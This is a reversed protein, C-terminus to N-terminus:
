VDDNCRQGFCDVCMKVGTKVDDLERTLERENQHYFFCVTDVVKWFLLLGGDSAVVFTRKEGRKSVRRERTNWDVGVPSFLSLGKTRKKERWFCDGCVIYFSHTVDRRSVM